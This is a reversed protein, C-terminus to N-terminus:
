ILPRDPRTSRIKAHRGRISSVGSVELRQELRDFEVLHPATHQLAVRLSQRSRSSIQGRGILRTSNRGGIPSFRRRLLGATLM